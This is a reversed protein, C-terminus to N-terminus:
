EEGRYAWYNDGLSVYKPSVALAALMPGPPLRRILNLVSYLTLAHVARQLSLGALGGFARDLLSELSVREFRRRLADIKEPNDVAVAVLDDFECSVPV